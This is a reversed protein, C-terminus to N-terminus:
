KKLGFATAVFPALRDAVIRAGEANPHIGDPQNLKPNLAVGDLLFPYLPAGRARAVTVFAADFARVYAAGLNAPARMGALAARVGKAKLGALIADLNARMQDPPLGRLMDNGGVAVLVGNTEKPASFDLRALVDASTDGSVGANVVRVALGRAKLAAELRAPIAEERRVGYGAILSDGLVTLMFPRKQALVPAPLAAGLAAVVLTRRTTNM